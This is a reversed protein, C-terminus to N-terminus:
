AEKCFVNFTSIKFCKCPSDWNHLVYTYPTYCNFFPFFVKNKLIMGLFIKFKFLFTPFILKM